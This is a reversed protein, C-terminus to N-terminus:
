SCGFYKGVPFSYLYYKGFVVSSSSLNLDFCINERCLILDVKFSFWNLCSLSFIVEVCMSFHGNSPEFMHAWDGSKM